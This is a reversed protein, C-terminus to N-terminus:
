NRRMESIEIAQAKNTIPVANSKHMTAIGKILTGTYDKREKPAGNGCIKNGLTVDPRNTAYNPIENVITTAKKNYDNDDMWQAHREQAALLRKNKTKKSKSNYKTTTMYPGVMHMSM